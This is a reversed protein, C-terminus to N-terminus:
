KLLQECISIVNQRLKPFNQEEVCNPKKQLSLKHVHSRYTLYANKFEHSSDENDVTKSRPRSVFYTPYEFTECWIGDSCYRTYGCLYSFRPSYYNNLGNVM